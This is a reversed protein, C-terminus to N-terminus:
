SHPPHCGLWEQMRGARRDKVLFVYDYAADIGADSM